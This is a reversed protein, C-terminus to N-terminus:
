FIGRTENGKLLGLKLQRTEPIGGYSMALMDTKDTKQHQQGPNSDVWGAGDLHQPTHPLTKKPSSRFGVAPLPCDALWIVPMVTLGKGWSQGRSPGPQLNRPLLAHDMAWVDGCGSGCCILLM